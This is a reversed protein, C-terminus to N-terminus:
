ASRMVGAPWSLWGFSGRKRLGSCNVQHVTPKDGGWQDILSIKLLQITSNNHGRCILQDVLSSILADNLPMNWSDELSGIGNGFNNLIKIIPHFGEKLKTAYNCLTVLSILCTTKKRDDFTHIIM